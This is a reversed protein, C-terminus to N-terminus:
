VQDGMQANESLHTAPIGTAIVALVIVLSYSIVLTAITIILSFSCESINMLRFISGHGAVGYYAAQVECQPLATFDDSLTTLFIAVVINQTVVVQLIRLGPSDDHRVDIKLGVGFPELYQIITFREGTSRDQNVSGVVPGQL